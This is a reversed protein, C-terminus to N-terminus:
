RWNEPGASPEQDGSSAPREAASQQTEEYIILNPQRSGELRYGNNFVVIRRKVGAIEVEGTMYTGGGNQERVWLAGIKQGKAM